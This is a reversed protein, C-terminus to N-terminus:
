RQRAVLYMDRLVDTELQMNHIRAAVLDGISIIGVLDGNELVPLHRSRTRTVAKTATDITDSPTCTPAHRMMVEDVKVSLASAGYRRLATIVDRESLVGSFGHEVGTVVLAGVAPPERLRHVAVSLPSWPQVTRIGHGKARLIAAVQV